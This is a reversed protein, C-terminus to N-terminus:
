GAADMKDDFDIVSMIATKLFESAMFKKIKVWRKSLNL